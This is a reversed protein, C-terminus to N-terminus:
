ANATASRALLQLFVELDTFSPIVKEIGALTILLRPLMVCMRGNGESEVVLGIRLRCHRLQRRQIGAAPVERLFSRAANALDTPPTGPEPLGMTRQFLERIETKNKHLAPVV